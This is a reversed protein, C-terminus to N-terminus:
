PERNSLGLSGDVGIGIGLGADARGEFHRRWLTSLSAELNAPPDPVFEEREEIVLRSLLGADALSRALYLHRPQSGTLLVIKM